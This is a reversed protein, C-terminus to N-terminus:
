VSWRIRTGDHFAVDPKAERQGGEGKETDVSERARGCFGGNRCLGGSDLATGVKVARGGTAVQRAVGGIARWEIAQRGIASGIGYSLSTAGLFATGLLAAALIAAGLDLGGGLPISHLIRNAVVARSQFEGLVNPRFHRMLSLKFDPELPHPTRISDASRM